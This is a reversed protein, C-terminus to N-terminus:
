KKANEADERALQETRQKKASGQASSGPAGGRQRDKIRQRLVAIYKQLQKLKWKWQAAISGGEDLTTTLSPPLASMIWDGETFTHQPNAEAIIALLERKQDPELVQGAFFALVGDKAVQADSKQKQPKGAPKTPPTLDKRKKGKPAGTPVACAHLRLASMDPLQAM